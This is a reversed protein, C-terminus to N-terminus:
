YSLADSGLNNKFVSFWFILWTSDQYMLQALFQIDLHKYTDPLFVL